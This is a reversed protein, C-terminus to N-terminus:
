AEIGGERGAGSGKMETLQTMVNAALPSKEPKKTMNKLCSLFKANIKRESSVVPCLM